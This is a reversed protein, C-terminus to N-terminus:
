HKSGSQSHMSQHMDLESQEDSRQELATRVLSQVEKDIIEDKQQQLMSISGFYHATILELFKADVSKEPEARLKTLEEPTAMGPHSPYMDHGSQQPYDKLNTYPEGWKKLLGEITVLQAERKTKMETVLKKLAPSQGRSLEIDFLEVAQQDHVLMRKVLDRDLIQAAALDVPPKEVPATSTSAKAELEATQGNYWVLLAALAAVFPIVVLATLFITKKNSQAKATRM